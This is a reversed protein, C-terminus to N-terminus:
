ICDSVESQSSILPFPECLGCGFRKPLLLPVEYLIPSDGRLLPRPLRSALEQVACTLGDFLTINRMRRNRLNSIGIGRPIPLMHNKEKIFEGFLIGFGSRQGEKWKRWRFTIFTAIVVRFNDAEM